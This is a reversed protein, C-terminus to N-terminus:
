ADAIMEELLLALESFQSSSVGGVQALRESGGGKFVTQECLQKVLAGANVNSSRSTAIIVRGKVAIIAVGDIKEALKTALTNAVSGDLDPVDQCVVQLFGQKRAEASLQEVRIPMLQKQLEAIERRMTKNMSALGSVKSPLDVVNCTFTQSLKDTIEFRRRYDALSQEGTLFKALINGRQKEVSIIKLLGVEATCNCHTGGCASYDFEDIKIVRLKGPRKPIRRLPLKDIDTGEAFVIEIPLNERIIENTLQEVDHIQEASLATSALEVAGYEEGLHVSVTAADFLRVFAQSLIHQATHMQQNQRRRKGDIKGSVKDGPSGLPQASLHRVDGDDTEVVDFIEVGNISGTDHSQGGSTPYFVSRDLVTYYNDDSSGTEVIRAEFELLGPDNYYLRETM